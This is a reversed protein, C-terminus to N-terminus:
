SHPCWSIASLTSATSRAGYAGPGWLKGVKRLFQDAERLTWFAVVIRWAEWPGAYDWVFPAFTDIGLLLPVSWASHWIWTKWATKMDIM